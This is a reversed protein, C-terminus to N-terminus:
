VTYQPPLQPTSEPMKVAKHNVCLNRVVASDFMYHWYVERFIGLVFRGKSGCNLHLVFVGLRAYHAPGSFIWAGGM